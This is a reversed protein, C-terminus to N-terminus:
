GNGFGEVEYNHLFYVYGDEPAFTVQYYTDYIGNANREPVYFYVIWHDTQYHEDPAPESAKTYYSVAMPKDKLADETVGEELLVKKAYAVAEDLTMEGERPLGEVFREDPYAMYAAYFFQKHELTWSPQVGWVEEYARIRKEMNSVDIDLVEGSKADITVGCDDPTGELFDHRLVILWADTPADDNGVTVYSVTVFAADNDEDTASLAKKWEARAIELAKDETIGSEAPAKLAATKFPAAQAPIIAAILLLAVLFLTTLKRM